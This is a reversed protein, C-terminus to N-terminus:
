YKTIVLEKNAKTALSISSKTGSSEGDWFAFVIDSDEIIQANRLYGAKKGFVEWDPYHVITNCKVEDALVEALTDAGRAGGSVITDIEISHSVCYDLVTEKMLPYDSFDRGGVIGIKKTM